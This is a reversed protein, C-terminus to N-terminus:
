RLTKGNGEGLIHTCNHAYNETLRERRLLRITSIELYPDSLPDPWLPGVRSSGARGRTRRLQRKKLDITVFYLRSQTYDFGPAHLSNRRTPLDIRPM